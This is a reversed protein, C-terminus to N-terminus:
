RNFPPPINSVYREQGDIARGELDDMRDDLWLRLGPSVDPLTDAVALSPGRIGGVISFAIGRAVIGIGQGMQELDNRLRRQRLLYARVVTFPPRPLHRDLFASASPNYIAYLMAQGRVNVDPSDLLLRLDEVSGRMALVAAANLRLGENGLDARLRALVWPPLKVRGLVEASEEPSEGLTNLFEHFAAVDNRVWWAYTGRLLSYKQYGDIHIQEFDSNSTRDLARASEQRGPRLLKDLTRLAEVKIEPNDSRALVRVVQEAESCHHLRVTRLLFMVSDTRGQVNQAGGPSQDNQAKIASSIMNENFWGNSVLGTLVWLDSPHQIAIIPADQISKSALALAAAFRVYAYPFTLLSNAIQPVKKPWFAAVTRLEIWVRIGLPVFRDSQPGVRVLAEVSKKLDLPLKASADSHSSLASAVLPIWDLQRDISNRKAELTSLLVSGPLVCHTRMAAGFWANHIIEDTEPTPAIRVLFSLIPPNCPKSLGELMAQKYPLNDLRGLGFDDVLDIAIEPKIAATRRLVAPTSLADPSALEELASVDKPTAIWSLAAAAEALGPADPYDDVDISQATKWAAAANGKWVSVATQWQPSLQSFLLPVIDNSWHIALPAGVGPRISRDIADSAIDTTLIRHPFGLWNLRPDGAYISLYDGKRNEVIGSEHWIYLSHDLYTYYLGVFLLFLGVLLGAVRAIRQRVFKRSYRPVEAEIRELSQRKLIFLRPDKNYTGAFVPEQVDPRQGLSELGEAIHCQIYEFLDSFYVVGPVAGVSGAEGRLTTVLARTFLTGHSERFEYSLQGVRSASLLLRFDYGALTNFFAQANEAFGASRCCDLIMLIGRAKCSSLASQMDHASIAKDSSNISANVPLLYFDSNRYEGHGSFYFILIEESTCHHAVANLNRLIAERSAEQDCLCVVNKPPIACAEELLLAGELARANAAGFELVLDRDDYESIGVIVVRTIDAALM